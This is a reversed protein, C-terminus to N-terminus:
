QTDAAGTRSQNRLTEIFALIKEAQTRWTVGEVAARARAGLAAREVASTNAAREIGRALGTPTEDELVIVDSGYHEAV